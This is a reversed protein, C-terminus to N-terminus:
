LNNGSISSTEQLISKALNTEYQINPPPKRKQLLMHHKCKKSFLIEDSSHSDQSIACICSGDEISYEESCNELPLENNECM